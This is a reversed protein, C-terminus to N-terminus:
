RFDTLVKCVIRYMTSVVYSTSSPMPIFFVLDRRYVLYMLYVAHDVLMYFILWSGNTVALLSTATAKAVIQFSCMALVTAFATGRNLEPIIGIVKPNQARTKVDTDIDWFITAATM